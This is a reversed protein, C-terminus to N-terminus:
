TYSQTTTKTASSHKIKALDCNTFSFKNGVLRGPSIFPSIFFYIVKNYAINAKPVDSFLHQEETKYHFTRTTSNIGGSHSKQRKTKVAKNYIM